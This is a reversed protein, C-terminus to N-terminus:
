AQGYEDVQTEREPQGAAASDVMWTLRGPSPHVLAAPLREGARVRALTEAKAAGSSLFLKKSFGM